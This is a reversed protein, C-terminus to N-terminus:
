TRRARTLDVGVAVAHAGGVDGFHGLCGVAREVVLHDLRHGVDGLGQAQRFGVELLHAQARAVHGVAPLSRVHGRDGLQSRACGFGAGGARLPPPPASSDPSANIRLPTVRAKPASRATSSTDNVTAAPWFTAIRPELPAPLVVSNLVMVPSKGGLAPRMSNKPSSMVANGGWSRM